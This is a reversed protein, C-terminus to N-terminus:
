GVDTLTWGWLFSIIRFRQCVFYMISFILHLSFQYVFLSNHPLMSMLLLLFGSDCWFQLSLLLCIYPTCSPILFSSLDSLPLWLQLLGTEWFSSDKQLYKHQQLCQELSLPLTLCLWTEGKKKVGTEWWHRGNTPGLCFGASIPIQFRCGISDAQVM